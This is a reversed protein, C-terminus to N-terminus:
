NMVIGWAFGFVWVVGWVNRGILMGVLRLFGSRMVRRRLSLGTRVSVLENGLVDCCEKKM